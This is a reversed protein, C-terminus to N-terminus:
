ILFPELKPNVDINYWPINEFFGIKGFIMKIGQVGEGWYNAYWQNGYSSAFWDPMSINIFNNRRIKNFNSKRLFIGWNDDIFTNDEFKCLHSHHVYIGGRNTGSITSNSVVVNTCFMMDIGVTTNSICLNKIEINECFILLLSDTVKSDIVKNEEHAYLLSLKGNVTNNEFVNDFYFSITLHPGIGCNLLTNNCVINEIPNVFMVGYSCNRIINDEFVNKRSFLHPFENMFMGARGNIGKANQFTFRSIKVHDSTVLVLTQNKKHHQGDIITKEKDEGILRIKKDIHLIEFYTGNFVYITDGGSADDIAEQIFTYNGPGSGGVFLTTESHISQNTM